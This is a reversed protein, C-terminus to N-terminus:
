FPHFRHPMSAPPPPDSRSGRSDRSSHRPDRESGWTSDRGSSESYRSRGSEGPGYQGPMMMRMFGRYQEPSLIERENLMLRLSQQQIEAQLRATEEAMEDLVELDPEPKEMEERMAAQLAQIEERLPTIVEEMERRMTRLSEIQHRELRPFSRSTDSESRYRSQWESRGGEEGGRRNRSYEYRSIQRSRTIAQTILVAGLAANLGLSAALLMTGLRKGNM